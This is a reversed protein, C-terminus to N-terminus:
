MGQETLAQLTESRQLTEPLNEVNRGHYDTCNDKLVWAILWGLQIWDMQEATKGKAYM